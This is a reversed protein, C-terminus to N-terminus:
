SSLSHDVISQVTIPEPGSYYKITVRDGRQVFPVVTPAISQSARFAKGDVLFLWYEKVTSDSAGSPQLLTAVREVKGTVTRLVPAGVGVGHVGEGALYAQWSSVAQPLTAAIIPPSVNSPDVIAVEQVIGSPNLIPAIYALAGDVKYLLPRGASLQSNVTAGNIRQTVAVDNQIGTFTTSTVQNTEADVLILSSLSNDVNSVSTMPIEWGLQGNGLLVNYPTAHVPNTALTHTFTSAIFGARDWGYRAAENQAFNPGVVQSVWAPQTGLPYYTVAGTSPNTLASGVLKRTVLDALGPAPNYLSTVWYGEGTPSIEFDSSGIILTPFNQYLLRDLNYSFGAQPMIEYQQGLVLTPKANPNNAPMYVYGPSFHRTLWILGNNYDLPAVWILAGHYRVLSLGSLSVHYQPGLSGIVNSLMIAANDREIIPVDSVQISPLTATPHARVLSVQEGYTVAADVKTVGGAIIGAVILSAATGVILLTLPGLKQVLRPLGAASAAFGGQQGVPRPGRQRRGFILQPISLGIFFLLMLGGIGFTALFLLVLVAIGAILVKRNSILRGFHKELLMRATRVTAAVLLIFLITPVNLPPFIGLFYEVVAMLLVTAGIWPWGRAPVSRIGWGVVVALTLLIPVLLYVYMISEEIACTLATV